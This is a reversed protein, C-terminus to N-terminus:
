LIICDSACKTICEKNDEEKSNKDKALERKVEEWIQREKDSAEMKKMWKEVHQDVQEETYNVKDYLGGWYQRVVKVAAAREDM